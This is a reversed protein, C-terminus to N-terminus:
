PSVISSVSNVSKKLRLFLKEGGQGPSNWGRGRIMHYSGTEGAGAGGGRHERLHRGDM